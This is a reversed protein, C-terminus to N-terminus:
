TDETFEPYAPPLFTHTRWRAAMGSVEASALGEKQPLVPRRTGKM